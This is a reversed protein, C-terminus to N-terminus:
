PIAYHLYMFFIILVGGRYFEVVGSELEGGFMQSFKINAGYAVTGPDLKVILQESASTGNAFHRFDIENAINHYPGAASSVGLGANSGNVSADILTSNTASTFGKATITFGALDVLAKNGSFKTLDFVGTLVDPINTKTVSVAAADGAVPADDEVTVDLKGTTTGKGDSVKVDLQFSLSDEQGKVPHDLPAKLTLDYAWDGKGSANPATLMKNKNLKWSTWPLSGSCKFSGEVGMVGARAHFVATLKTVLVM